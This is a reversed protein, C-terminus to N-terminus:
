PCKLNPIESTAAIMREPLFLLPKTCVLTAHLSALPNRMVHSCASGQESHGRLDRSFTSCCSSVGSGNRNRVLLQALVPCKLLQPYWFFPLALISHNVSSLILDLFGCPTPFSAFCILACHHPSVQGAGGLGNHLFCSGM